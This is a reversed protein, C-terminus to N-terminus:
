STDEVRLAETGEHELWSTVSSDARIRDMVTWVIGTPLQFTKVPDSLVSYLIICFTIYDPYDM